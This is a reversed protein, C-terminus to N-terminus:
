VYVYNDAATDVSPGTTNTVLTQVTGAAHAPTVASITNDNIVNYSAANTGGFKVGTAGTVGTFNSGTITVLTGGAAAGTAPSVSGIAPVLGAGGYPNTIATRPGQGLLTFNVSALGPADGGQPEWQVLVYGEYAEDGTNRAYWRVHVLLNADAAARLAEQALDFSGSYKKRLVTGTSNHKRATVADQGWGDTDYDTADQITSALAPVFNSMGKLQAWNGTYGATDLDVDVRWKSNVTPNGPTPAPM